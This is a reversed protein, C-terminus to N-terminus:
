QRTSHRSGFRRISAKNYGTLSLPIANNACTLMPEISVYMSFPEKTNPQTRILFTTKLNLSIPPKLMNM